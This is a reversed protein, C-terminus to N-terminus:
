DNQNETLMEAYRAPCHAMIKATLALGENRMGENFAMQLANTSFSLRWLGARTLLQHAVRRGRKGSMLWIIDDREVRQANRAKEDSTQRKDEQTSLDFPDHNNM